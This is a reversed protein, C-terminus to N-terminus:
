LIENLIRKRREHKTEAIDVNYYSVIDYKNNFIKVVENNSDYVVYKRENNEDIIVKCERM